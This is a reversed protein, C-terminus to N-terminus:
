QGGPAAGQPSSRGASDEPERAPVEVVEAGRALLQRYLGWPGLARCSRVGLLAKVAAVCGFIPAGMGREAVPAMRLVATAAHMLEGIKENAEPGDPVLRIETRDRSPDFILWARLDWVLSVAVVHRYGPRLFLDWWGGRGDCFFILWERPKM